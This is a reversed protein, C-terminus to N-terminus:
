RSSAAKREAELDRGSLRAGREADSEEERDDLHDFEDRQVADGGNMHNPAANREAEDMLALENPSPELLAALAHQRTGDAEKPIQVALESKADVREDMVVELVKGDEERVIRPM